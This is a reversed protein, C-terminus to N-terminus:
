LNVGGVQRPLQVNYDPEGLVRLIGSRGPIDSSPSARLDFYLEAERM